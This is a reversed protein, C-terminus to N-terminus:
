DASFQGGLQKRTLFKRYEEQFKDFDMCIKKIIGPFIIVETGSITKLDTPPEAEPEGGWVFDPASPDKKNQKLMEAHYTKMQEEYLQNKLKDDSKFLYEGKFEKSHLVSGLNVASRNLEAHMGSYSGSPSSGPHIAVAGVRASHTETLEDVDILDEPFPLNFPTDM